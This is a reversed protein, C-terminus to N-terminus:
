IRKRYRRAIIYDVKDRLAQVLEDNQTRENCHELRKDIADIYDELRQKFRSYNALTREM